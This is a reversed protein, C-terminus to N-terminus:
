LYYHIKFCMHKDVLVQYMLILFSLLVSEETRQKLDLSTCLELSLGNYVAKNCLM